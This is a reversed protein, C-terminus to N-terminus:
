GVVQPLDISNLTVLM